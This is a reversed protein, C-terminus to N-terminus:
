LEEKVRMSTVTEVVSEVITSATDAVSTAADKNGPLNPLIKGQKMDNWALDFRAGGYWAAAMMTGGLVFITGFTAVVLWFVEMKDMAAQGSNEHAVQEPSKEEQAAMVGKVDGR